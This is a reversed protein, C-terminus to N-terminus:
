FLPRVHMSFSSKAIIFMTPWLRPDLPIALSRQRRILRKNIITGHMAYPIIGLVEGGNEFAANSVLGMSGLDAGGYVLKIGRRAIAKGMEQASQAYVPLNGTGCGCFVAISKIPSENVM